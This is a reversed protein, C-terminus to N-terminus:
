PYGWTTAASDNLARLARRINAPPTLGRNPAGGRAGEPVFGPPAVCSFRDHWM